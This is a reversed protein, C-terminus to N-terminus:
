ECVYRCACVRPCACVGLEAKTRFLKEAESGLGSCGRQERIVGRGGEM